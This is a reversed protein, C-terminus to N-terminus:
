KRAYTGMTEGRAVVHGKMAAELEARTAGEPLPLKDVDLAYLRFFYRHAPGKPPCPGGWGLKGFDNKGEVGVGKTGPPLTNTPVEIDWVVWHVWTGVPADPDEVILAFTKAATPTGTWSIEPSEDKGDCTHVVPIPQSPEFPAELVLRPGADTTTTASSAPTPSPPPDKKCAAGVVFALVWAAERGGM